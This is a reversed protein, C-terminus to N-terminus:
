GNFYPEPDVPTLGQRVEFHFTSADGGRIKALTQGRTVKDKKAVTVGEVNSYITFVNGEHRVVVITAGGTETTIAAVTGDMTAKVSAGASANYDLGESASSFTRIISGNVPPTMRSATAAPATEPGLDPAPPAPVPAVVVPDPDPLPTSASPPTPTVTGAGPEPTPEVPAPTAVTTEEAAPILLYQGERLDLDTGLGNWDALSRVSVNYLRAISYATEGREVQHRVPEIGTQQDAVPTQVPTDGARTIAGSALTTIDIEDAPVIPGTTTAGTLPSPESVRRPLAVIEGARLTDTLSVGNYTALEAPTLGVRNAVQTITDDKRAVAVQYNPYSIVGRDDAEPRSATEITVGNNAASGGFSPRFDIIEGGECAALAMASLGLFVGTRLNMSFNIRDSM